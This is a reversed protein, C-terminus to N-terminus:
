GQTPAHKRSGLSVPRYNQLTSQEGQLLVGSAGGCEQTFVWRARNGRGQSEEPPQAHVTSGRVDGHADRDSGTEEAVCLAVLLSM